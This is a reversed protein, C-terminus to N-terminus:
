EDELSDKWPWQSLLMMTPPGPSNVPIFVSPCQETRLATQRRSVDRSPCALAQCPECTAVWHKCKKASILLQLAWQRWRDKKWRWVWDGQVSATDVHTRHWDQRLQFEAPDCCAWRHVVRVGENLPKVVQEQLVKKIAWCRCFRHGKKPGVSYENVQQWVLLCVPTHGGWAMNADQCFSLGRWPFGNMQCYLLFVIRFSNSQLGSSVTSSRLVSVYFPMQINALTQWHHCLSYFYWCKINKMLTGSREKGALWPFQGVSGLLGATQM